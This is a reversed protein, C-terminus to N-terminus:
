GEYGSYDNIAAQTHPGWVGDPAGAAYGQWDLALQLLRIAPRVLDPRNPLPTGQDLWAVFDEIRICPALQDLDSNGAIGAVHGTQSSQWIAWCYRWDPDASGDWPQLKLGSPSCYEPFWRPWRGIRPTPNDPPYIGYYALGQRQFRTEYADMWDEVVTAPVGEQEWDLCLVAETGVFDFCEQMRSSSDTAHLWVYALAPMGGQRAAAMNTKYEPDPADAEWAKILVFEIGDAAMAAVDPNGQWHSYDCGKVTM